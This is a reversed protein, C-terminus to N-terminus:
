WFLYQRKTSYPVLGSPICALMSPNNTHRGRNDERASHLGSSLKKQCRSVWTTGSFPGYFPQTHTHHQLSKDHSPTIKISQIHEQYRGFSSSAHLYVLWWYMLLWLWLWIATEAIFTSRVQVNPNKASVSPASALTVAVPSHFQLVFHWWTICSWMLARESALAIHKAAIECSYLQSCVSWFLEVTAVIIAFLAGNHCIVSGSYLRVKNVCRLLLCQLRDIPRMLQCGECVHVLQFVIM